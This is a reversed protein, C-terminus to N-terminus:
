IQCNIILSKIKTALNDGSASYSPSNNQSEQVLKLFDSLLKSTDSKKSSGADSSATSSATETSGPHKADYAEQEAATVVGDGNADASDTTTKNAGGGGTPEAPSGKCGPGGPDGARESGAQFANAFVSKLESAQAETLKGDKVEDAILGNVRSQITSPSPASGISPATSRISADISEIASGLASKDGPSITGSSVESALESQLRSLPSFSQLLSSASVSSM